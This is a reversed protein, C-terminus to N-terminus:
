LYFLVHLNCSLIFNNGSTTEEGNEDDALVTETATSNNNSDRKYISTLAKTLSGDYYRNLIRRIHIYLRYISILLFSEIITPFVTCHLSLYLDIRIHNHKGLGEEMYKLQWYM